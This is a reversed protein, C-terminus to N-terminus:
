RTTAYPKVVDVGALWSALGYLFQTPQTNILEGVVWSYGGRIITDFDHPKYRTISGLYFMAAYPAALPALRKRPPIASLYYRYGSGTLITWIGVQRLRRALEAIVADTRRTPAPIADTEFWVEEGNPNPPAVQRLTAGFGRQRRIAALPSSVDTDARQLKLRAWVSGQSRLVEISRIPAFQPACGAVHCYTRHISPIQGLVDVVRITRHDTATDGLLAGFEPFVASHQPHRADIRVHQGELRVRQRVNAKPDGIGHVVVPPIAVGEYLLAAKALNLFCYYYLLPKSGLHPSAAAEYFELAQGLYALAVKEQRQSLRRAILHRLLAWVDATVIRPQRKRFFAPFGTPHGHVPEGDRARPFPAPM